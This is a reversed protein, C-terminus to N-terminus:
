GDLRGATWEAYASETEHLRLSHLTVEPPLKDKLIEAFLLLLNECTPQVSTYEIRGYTSQLEASLPSDKRLILAHDFRHLIHKEVTRKLDGFDIVMGLKPSNEDTCPYGAVTVFLIYSHGHIHRCLGDYGNLAHAAEFTFRKTLRIKDM